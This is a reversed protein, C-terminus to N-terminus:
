WRKDSPYGLAQDRSTVAPLETRVVEFSGLSLSDRLFLSNSRHSLLVKAQTHPLRPLIAAVGNEEGM